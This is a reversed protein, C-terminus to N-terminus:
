GLSQAAAGDKQISSHGGLCRSQLSEESKFEYGADDKANRLETFTKKKGGLQEGFQSINQELEANKGQPEQLLM